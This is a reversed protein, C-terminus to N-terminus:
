ANFNTKHHTKFHINLIICHLIGFNGSNSQRILCYLCLTVIIRINDKIKPIPLTQSCIIVVKNATQSGSSNGTAVRVCLPVQTQIHTPLQQTCTHMPTLTTSFNECPFSQDFHNVGNERLQLVGIQYLFPVTSTYRKPLIHIDRFDLGQCHMSMIFTFILRIHQLHANHM